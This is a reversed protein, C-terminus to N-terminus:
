RAPQCNMHRRHHSGLWFLGDLAPARRQARRQIGFTLRRFRQETKRLGTANADLLQLLEFGVLTSIMSSASFANGM